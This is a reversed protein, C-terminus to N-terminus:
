ERNWNGREPYYSWLGINEPSGSSSIDSGFYIISAYLNSELETKEPTANLLVPVFSTASLQFEANTSFSELSSGPVGDTISTKGIGGSRSTKNSSDYEAYGFLLADQCFAIDSITTTASLVKKTDKLNETENYYVSSGSAYYFRTAEDKYTENTVSASSNFFLYEGNYYIASNIEPNTSDIASISAMPTNIFTEDLGKLEFYKISETESSGSRFFVKRHAKIPSNTQFVNFSSAYYDNEEAYRNYILKFYEKKTDNLICKWDASSGKDWGDGEAAPKIQTAYISFVDPVIIGAIDDYTFTSTVIYLTDSDALVKIILQGKMEDDFYAYSPLSFPLSSKDYSHWGGHKNNDYLKYHLGDNAAIVLYENSGVTYRTISNIPGNITPDEPPVDKRVEYFIPNFCSTFFISFLAAITFISLTKKM